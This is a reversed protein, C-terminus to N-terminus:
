QVGMQFLLTFRCILPEFLSLFNGVEPICRVFTGCSLVGLSLHSVMILVRWYIQLFLEWILLDRPASYRGSLTSNSFFTRFIISFCWQRFHSVGVLLVCFLLPLFSFREPFHVGHLSLISSHAGKTFTYGFGMSPNVNTYCHYWM